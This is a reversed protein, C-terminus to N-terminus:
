AILRLWHYFYKFIIEKLSQLLKIYKQLQSLIGTLNEHKNLFSSLQIESEPQKLKYTIINNVFSSSESFYSRFGREKEQMHIANKYKEDIHVIALDGDTTKINDM